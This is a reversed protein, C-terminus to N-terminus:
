SDIKKVERDPQAQRAFQLCYLFVNLSLAWQLRLTSGFPSFFINWIGLLGLFVALPFLPNPYTYSAALSRILIWLILLWFIAGVIGSWVWAQLLHSHPSILDTKNVFREVRLWDSEEFQTGLLYAAQFYYNRYSPDRAWSGHGIWPSDSIAYYAPILNPRSYLINNLLNGGALWRERQTAFDSLEDRQALYNYGLLIVNALLVLLVSLMVLSGYNRRSAFYKGIRTARLWLLFFTLLTVGGVSRFDFYLSIVGVLFIIIGWLRMKVRTFKGFVIVPFTLILLTVPYGYGFKWFQQAFLYGPEIITQLILGSAFGVSYLGLRQPNPFVLLYLGLFDAMSFFILAWGRWADTSLTSLYLDAIVQALFWIVGYALINKVYPNQLAQKRRHFLLIALLLFLIESIYLQGIFRVYFASLVGLVFAVVHLPTENTSSKITVSINKHTSIETM